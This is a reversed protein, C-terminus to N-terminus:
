SLFQAQLSKLNRHWIIARWLEVLLAFALVVGTLVLVSLLTERDSM